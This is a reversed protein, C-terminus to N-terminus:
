RPCWGATYFSLLAAVCSYVDVIDTPAVGYSYKDDLDNRHRSRGCLNRLDGRCDLSNQIGPKAHGGLQVEYEHNSLLSKM